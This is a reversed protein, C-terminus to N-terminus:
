GPAFVKQHHAKAAQRHGHDLTALPLGLTRALDFYLADYGQLHYRRAFEVV